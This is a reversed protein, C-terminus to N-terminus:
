SQYDEYDATTWGTPVGGTTGTPIELTKPKYVTGTPSVNKLWRGFADRDDWPTVNPAIVKTLSSCGNFCDRLSMDKVSKINSLDPSTTLSTCNFFCSRLGSWGVSKINSFDPPTTLSTCGKFCESFGSSLLITVKSFDPATTLSSCGYFCWTFGYADLSKVNSFDHATTLSSCESFCEWFGDYGVSVVNSFDPTTTLSSCKNFCSHFAFKGVSTVRSGDFPTTIGTCGSFGCEFEQDGVGSRLTKYNMLTRIDGSTELKLPSSFQKNASSTTKVVISGGPSLVPTEEAFTKWNSNSLDPTNPQGVRSKCWYMSNVDGKSLRISGTETDANKFAVYNRHENYYNYDSLHRQTFSGSECVRSTAVDYKLVALDQKTKIGLRLGITTQSGDMDRFIRFADDTVKSPNFYFLNSTNGFADDVFIASGSEDRFVLRIATSGSTSGFMAKYVDYTYPLELAIYIEDKAKLRDLPFTIYGDSSVEGTSEIVKSALGTGEFESIHERTLPAHYILNDTNPNLEASPDVVFMRLKSELLIRTSVQNGISIALSKFVKNEPVQFHLLSDYVLNKEVITSVKGELKHKGNVIKPNGYGVLMNPIEFYQKSGEFVGYKYMNDAYARHNKFNTYLRSDGPNNPKYLRIYKM